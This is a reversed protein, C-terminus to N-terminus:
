KEIQRQRATAFRLANRLSHSIPVHCFFFLEVVGTAESRGYSLFRELRLSNKRTIRYNGILQRTGNPMEIQRHPTFPSQTM